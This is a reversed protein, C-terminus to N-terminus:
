GARALLDALSVGQEAQVRQSQAAVAAMEPIQRTEESFAPRESLTAVWRALRPHLTDMPYGCRILRLAYIYWAIDLVTLTEGRLYPAKKLDQELQDFADRFKAASAMVRDDSLGEAAAQEWYAIERAKVADPAGAVQGSGGVRYAALAEPSKGVPGPMRTYRFSITRLDLHLDDEHRLLEAIKERDKAPVLPPGELRDELHLLIDNSEIHVAGDDVLCPVLGRPNIGLYWPTMNEGKPLHLPHSSWEAQKLRLFIRTKQSCSSGQFHFLHLGTWALVEKTLIDSECLQVM